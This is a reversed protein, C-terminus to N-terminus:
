DFEKDLVVVARVFRDGARVNKTLNEGGRVLVGLAELTKLADRRRIGLERFAEYATERDIGIELQDRSRWVAADSHALEAVKRRLAEIDARQREIKRATSQECAEVRTEISDMRQTLNANIEEVNAKVDRIEAIIRETDNM